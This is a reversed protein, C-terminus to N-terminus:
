LTNRRNWRFVLNGYHDATDGEALLLAGEIPENDASRPAVRPEGTLLRDLRQRLPSDPSLMRGGLALPSRTEDLYEIAARITLILHHAAEDLIAGSEEISSSTALVDRAFQAIENVPSSAEHVRVHLHELNGYREIALETLQSDHGSDRARLVQGLARRGIWFAGGEDGLLYGHGDFSRAPAHASVALSAVGTGATLSIGNGGSLAGCHATVSDDALWVGESGTAEAVMTCLRTKEEDLVPATTLGLVVLDIKPFESFNVANRVASAIATVPDGIRSAGAVEVTLQQVSHRLRIGSQGGDVGLTAIM